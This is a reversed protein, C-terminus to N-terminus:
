LDVIPVLVGQMDNLVLLGTQRPTPASDVPTGGPIMVADRVLRDYESDSLSVAQGVLVQDTRGSDRTFTIPTRDEPDSRSVVTWNRM